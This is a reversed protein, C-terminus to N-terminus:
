QTFIIKDTENVMDAIVGFINQLNEIDDQMIAYRGEVAYDNLEILLDRDPNLDINNNKIITLLADLDHIKPFEIQNKSLVAKMLKEACQQLHFCILGLDLGSNAENFKKYLINAASLDAKAKKFLIEYQNLFSVM